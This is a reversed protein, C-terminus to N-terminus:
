AKVRFWNKLLPFPERGQSTLFTTIDNLKSVFLTEESFIGLFKCNTQIYM